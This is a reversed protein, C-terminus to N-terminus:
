VQASGLQGCVTGSPIGSTVHVLETLLQTLLQISTQSGDIIAQACELRGITATLRAVVDEVGSEDKVTNEPSHAEERQLISESTVAFLAKVFGWGSVMHHLM